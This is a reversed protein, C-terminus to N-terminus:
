QNASGVILTSGGHGGGGIIELEALSLERIETGDNAQIEGDTTKSINEIKM